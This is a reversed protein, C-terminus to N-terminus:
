TIETSSSQTTVYLISVKRYISTRKRAQTHWSAKSLTQTIVFFPISYKEKYTNVKLTATGILQKKRSVNVRGNQSLPDCSRFAAKMWHSKVTLTITLKCLNAWETDLVSLEIRAFAAGSIKISQKDDLNTSHLPWKDLLCVASRTHMCYTDQGTSGYLTATKM